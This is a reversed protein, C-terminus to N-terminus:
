LNKYNFCEEQQKPDSLDFKDCPIIHDIHWEKMGKGNYGTGHNNWTM